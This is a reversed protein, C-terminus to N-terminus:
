SDAQRIANQGGQGFGIKNRATTDIIRPERATSLVTQVGAAQLYLFLGKDRAARLCVIEELMPRNATIINGQSDIILDQNVPLKSRLIEQLHAWNKDIEAWTMEPKIM